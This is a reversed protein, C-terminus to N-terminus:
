PTRSLQFFAPACVFAFMGALWWHPAAGTLLEASRLAEILAQWVSCWAGVYALWRDFTSM